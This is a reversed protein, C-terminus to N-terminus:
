LIGTGVESRLATEFWQVDNENTKTQFVVSAKFGTASNAIWQGQIKKNEFSQWSATNWLSTSWVAYKKDEFNLRVFDSIKRDEFDMDTGIILTLNKITKLRPKILTIKKLASTGLSTYAQKITGEIALGDDSYGKDFICIGNDTGFFLHGDYLCWCFARINTFRCWAGTKVNVVHQEFTNAVPVNFIGYGKKGYIIGQWGSLKKYLSAREMVLDNIKNSFAAVAVPANNSSLVQSLPMYGDECIIIVDGHFPLVCQYGIPKSIKYSGMLTFHDADNPNYGKYILVEGESTLLCTYDDLGEGGDITWNFVAVLYGGWKLIQGVDFLTLTGSINGAVSSVWVNTSNQEIFWLFEHSVGGSIIKHAPLDDASFNWDEFHEQDQDDIYFVKPTDTGNMFYLHGRYLLTQCRSVSFNVNEYQHVTPNSVDYAKSGYVAIMKTKGTINYCSLTEVKRSSEFNGLSVYKEYGPRLRVCGNMPIYNDMVIADTPSMDSLPDKKNLGGVPAPLIVDSSKVHRNVNKKIM